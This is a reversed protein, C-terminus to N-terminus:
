FCRINDREPNPLTATQGARSRPSLRIGERFASWWIRSEIWININLDTCTQWCPSLYDDVTDHCHLNRWLGGSGGEIGLIYKKYAMNAQSFVICSSEIQYSIHFNFLIFNGASRQNSVQELFIFTLVTHPGLRFYYPTFGKWLSFFGENKIM